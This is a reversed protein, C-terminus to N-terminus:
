PAVGYAGLVMAKYPGSCMPCFGKLPPDPYLKMHTVLGAIALVCLVGLTIRGKLESRKARSKVSLSSM